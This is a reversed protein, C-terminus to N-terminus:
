DKMEARTLRSLIWTDLRRSETFYFRYFIMVTLVYWRFMSWWIMGILFLSVLLGWFVLCTASDVSTDAWIQHCASPLQANTYYQKLREEKETFREQLWASSDEPVQDMRYQQIYFSICRPFRGTIFCQESARDGPTHDVFFMTVDYIHDVKDRLLSVLHNWGTTRPYLTYERDPLGAKHAFQNSKDKNRQSLDTGEPFILFVSADSCERLRTITETM